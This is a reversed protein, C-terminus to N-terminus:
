LVHICCLFPRRRTRSSAWTRHPNLQIRQVNISNQEARPGTLARWGCLPSERSAPLATQPPLPGAAESRDKLAPPRVCPGLSFAHSSSPALLNCVPHCQDYKPGDSSPRCSLSCSRSHYLASPVTTHLRPLALFGHPSRWSPFGSNHSPFDEPNTIPLSTPLSPFSM